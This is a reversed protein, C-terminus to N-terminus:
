RFNGPNYCKNSAVNRLLGEHKRNILDNIWCEPYATDLFYKFDKCKLREKVELMVSLDGLDEKPRCLVCM